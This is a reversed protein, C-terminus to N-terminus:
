RCCWWRSPAVGFSCQLMAGMCVHNPMARGGNQEPGRSASGSPSRPSTTTGRSTRPAAAAREARARAALRQPSAAQTLAAEMQEDEVYEWLGDTCLLFVDGAEVQWPPASVASRCTTRASASPRSCSAASRIRACTRPPSCAATSWRSCWATTAPARRSRAARSLRLPAFRRLPGLHRREGDFDIFLAVVTSHMNQLARDDARHQIISRNTDVIMQEIAEPAARGAHRRLRRPHVAGGAELGQRRRRSRRRRRRRRLVPPQRLALPRLRGRQLQSRRAAVTDRTGDARDARGSRSPPANGIM